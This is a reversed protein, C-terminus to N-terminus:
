EGRTNLWQVFEAPSGDFLVEDPARWGIKTCKMRLTKGAVYIVYTYEEGVDHADTPYLYVNGVEDKFHKVAQAALCGMGNALKRERAEERDCPIGNVITRGSLFEALELGLGEPYGDYQRYMCVVAEGSHNSMFRTLSRTGM